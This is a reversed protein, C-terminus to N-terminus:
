ELPLFRAAEFIAMGAQDVASSVTNALIVVGIGYTRSFCIFSHYGGTEGNHWVLPGDWKDDYSIHWFLGIQVNEIIEKRPQQADNLTDALPGQPNLNANLFLMMDKMTSRIGGAGVLVDFDWNSTVSPKLPIPGFHKSIYGPALRERQDASLTITTDQLNLLDLVYKRLTKEYTLGAQLALAYGLLGAGLNSYEYLSGPARPLTYGTLFDFMLSDSYDAYPNDPDAPSLNDPLRPLGATHTALHTLTISQGQFNPMKVSKPLLNEVPDDYTVLGDHALAALLIGTFVKSISGIEYVTNIDPKQGTGLTTEGYVFVSQNEGAVVGVVAGVLQHKRVLPLLARDATEHVTTPSKINPCGFCVLFLSFIFFVGVRM